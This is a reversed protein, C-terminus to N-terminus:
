FSIDENAQCGELKSYLAAIEPEFTNYVEKRQPSGKDSLPIQKNAPKILIASKTSIWAHSDMLRNAALVTPWIEKIFIDPDVQENIPEILIGLEFQGNGFAIARRISSHQEM